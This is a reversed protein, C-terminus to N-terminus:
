TSSAALPLLGFWIKVSPKSLIRSEAFSDKVIAKMGAPEVMGAFDSTASRMAFTVSRGVAVVAGLESLLLLLLPALPLLEESADPAGDDPSGFEVVVVVTAGLLVLELPGHLRDDEDTPEASAKTRQRQSRRFLHQRDDIPGHDLPHDSVEGAM